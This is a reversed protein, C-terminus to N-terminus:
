EETDLLLAFRDRYDQIKVKATDKNKAWGNKRLVEEGRSSISWFWWYGIPLKEIRYSSTYIKV